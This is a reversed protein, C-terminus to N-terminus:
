SNHWFAISVILEFIIFYLNFCREIRNTILDLGFNYLIM